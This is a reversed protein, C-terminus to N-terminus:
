RLSTSGLVLVISCCSRITPFIKTSIFSAPIIMRLPLIHYIFYGHPIIKEVLCPSNRSNVVLYFWNRSFTTLRKAQELIKVVKAFLTIQCYLLAFRLSDCPQWTTVM